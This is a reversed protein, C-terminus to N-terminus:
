LCFRASLLHPVLIRSPWVYLFLSLVRGRCACCSSAYVLPKPHHILETSAHKNPRCPIWFDPSQIYIHLNKSKYFFFIAADIVWGSDGKLEYDRRHWCSAPVAEGEQILCSDGSAQDGRSVLYWSSNIVWSMSCNTDHYFFYNKIRM